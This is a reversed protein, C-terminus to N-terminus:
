EPVQILDWEMAVLWREKENNRDDSGHLEGQSTPLDGDPLNAEGLHARLELDWTLGSHIGVLDGAQLHLARFIDSHPPKSRPHGMIMIKTSDDQVEGQVSHGGLVTGQLFALPGCSSLTSHRAHNVRVAVHYKELVELARAEPTSPVKAMQPKPLSDRKTGMELIWGRVEAAMGGPTYNSAGGRQRGRRRLTRSSPSFPAPIDEAEQNPSPSRPLVFTPKRREPPSIEQTGAQFRPASQSTPPKVTSSLMFRPRGRFPTQTNAPTSIGPAVLRASPAPTRQVDNERAAFNPETGNSINETAQNDITPPSSLPDLGTRTTSPLPTTKEVRRRKNERTTAFLADFEADLVSPPESGEPASSEIADDPFENGTTDRAGQTPILEADDSDEIVDRLHRSRLASQSAPPQRTVSPTSSPGEDDDIVDIDDINEQTTPQSLVFRPTPAFQPGANRRTSTNRRSLRFPSPTAQFPM